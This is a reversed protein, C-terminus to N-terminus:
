KRGTNRKEVTKAKQSPKEHAKDEELEELQEGIVTFLDALTPKGKKMFKEMSAVTNGLLDDVMSSMASYPLNLQKACIKFREVNEQTLSLQYRKKM